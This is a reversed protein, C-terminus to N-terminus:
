KMDNLIIFIRFFQTYIFFIAFVVFVCVTYFIVCTVTAAITCQYWTKNISNSKICTYINRRFTYMYMNQNTNMKPSIGWLNFLTQLVLRASSLQASGLLAASHFFFKHVNVFFENMENREIKTAYRVRSGAEWKSM